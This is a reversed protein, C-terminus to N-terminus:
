KKKRPATSPKAVGGLPSRYSREANSLLAAMGGGGPLVAMVTRLHSFM